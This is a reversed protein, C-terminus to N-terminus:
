GSEKKKIIFFLEKGRRSNISNIAEEMVLIDFYPEFCNKYENRNGGFPPKDKNLEDNFLLGVMKGNSNLLDYAKKSYEVRLIPDIACFFTQEIILDFTGEAKFFDKLFIQSTPFDSVRLKFKELAISSIDLVFVNNFGQKHLYEAEYSNGAGPILIKIKKDKIQDIYNKLPPSVKGLDWGIDNNKYRNDWFEKSLEM